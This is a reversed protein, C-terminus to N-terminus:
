TTVELRFLMVTKSTSRCTATLPKASHEHYVKCRVGPYRQIPRIQRSTTTHGDRYHRDQKRESALQDQHTVADACFSLEALGSSSPSKIATYLQADDSIQHSSSVFSSILGGGTDYIFLVSATQSGVKGCLKRHVEHSALATKSCTM